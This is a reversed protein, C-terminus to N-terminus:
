GAESSAELDSTAPSAQAIERSAIAVTAEDVKARMAVAIAPLVAAPWVERMSELTGTMDRWGDAPEGADVFPQWVNDLFLRVFADALQDSARQIAAAAGLVADIPVGRAVLDAGIRILGPVPAVFNDGDPVLVGLEVARTLATGSVDPVLEQLEDPTFSRPHETTFPAALAEEFGLVDALSRNAQWADLLERIAALPYGRDLFTLILRLRQLHAPGYLGVRGKREPPPLLGRTQYLRVNRGTTGAMRALDDIPWPGADEAV